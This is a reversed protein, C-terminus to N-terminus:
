KILAPEKIWVGLYCGQEFVTSVILQWFKKTLTIDDEKSDIHNKFAELITIGNYNFNPTNIPKLNIKLFHGFINETLIIKGFSCKETDTNFAQCPVFSFMENVPNDYTAGKYIIFKKETDTIFYQGNKKNLREFIKELVVNKFIQYKEDSFKNFQPYDSKNIHITNDGVVFVTDLEMYVTEKNFVKGPTGFLIIDGKQLRIMEGRQKCNTYFFNDGFVYPDTNQLYVGSEKKIKYVHHLYKPRKSNRIISIINDKISDNTYNITEFTTAPEWEGWFTIDGLLPPKNLSSIYKGYAKMFKRYHEGDNWPMYRNNIAQSLNFTHYDNNSKEKMPIFNKLHEGGSHGFLVIRPM